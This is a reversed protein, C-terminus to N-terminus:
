LTLRARHRERLDTSLPQRGLEISVSKCAGGFKGKPSEWTEDKLTHTNIKKM